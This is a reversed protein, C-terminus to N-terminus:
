WGSGQATRAASDAEDLMGAQEAGRKHGMRTLAWSMAAPM